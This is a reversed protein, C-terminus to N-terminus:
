IGGSGLQEKPEESIAVVVEEKSLGILKKM